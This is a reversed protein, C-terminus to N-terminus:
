STVAFILIGTLMLSEYKSIVSLRGWIFLIISLGFAFTAVFMGQAFARTM